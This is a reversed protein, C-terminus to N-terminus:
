KGIVFLDIHEAPFFDHRPGGNGESQLVVAQTDQERGPTGDPVGFNARLTGTASAQFAEFTIRTGAAPAFRSSYWIPCPLAPRSTSSYLRWIVTRWRRMREALVDQARHGFLLPGNAFDGGSVVWALASTTHVLLTVDARGDDIESL